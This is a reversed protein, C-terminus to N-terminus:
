GTLEDGLNWLLVGVTYFGDGVRSIAKGLLDRM